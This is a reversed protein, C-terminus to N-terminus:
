PGIPQGRTLEAQLQRARTHLKLHLYGQLLEIRGPLDVAAKQLARIGILEQATLRYVTVGHDANPPGDGLSVEYGQGEELHLNTLRLQNLGVSPHILSAQTQTWVEQGLPRILVRLNSNEFQKDIMDLDVLPPSEDDVCFQGALSRSSAGGFKSLDIQQRHVLSLAARGPQKPLEQVGKGAKLPRDLRVEWSLPGILRYRVGTALVSVTVSSEPYLSVRDGVKLSTLMQLPLRSTAGSHQVATKGTVSLVVAITSFRGAAWGAVAWALCFLM